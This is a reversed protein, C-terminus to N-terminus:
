DISEVLAFLVVIVSMAIAMAAAEMLVELEGRGRCGM